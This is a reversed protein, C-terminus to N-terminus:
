KFFVGLLRNLNFTLQNSDQSLGYFKLLPFVMGKKEFDITAFTICNNPVYSIRMEGWVFVIHFYYHKHM